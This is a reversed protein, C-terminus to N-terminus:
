WGCEMNVDGCDRYLCRILLWRPTQDDILLLLLWNGAGVSGPDCFVKSSIDGIECWPEVKSDTIECSSLEDELLVVVIKALV